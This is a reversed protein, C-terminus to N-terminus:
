QALVRFRLLAIFENDNFNVPKHTCHVALASLQFSVEVLRIKCCAALLMTTSIPFCSYEFLDRSCMRLFLQKGEDKTPDHGEPILPDPGRSLLIDLVSQDFGQSFLQSLYGLECVGIYGSPAYDKVDCETVVAGNYETKVFKKVRERIRPVKFLLSLACDSGDWGPASKKVTRDRVGHSALVGLQQLDDMCQPLSATTGTLRISLSYWIDSDAPRVASSSALSQHSLGSFPVTQQATLLHNDPKFYPGPVWVFGHMLPTHQGIPFPVRM